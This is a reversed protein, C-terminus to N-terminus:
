DENSEGRNIFKEYIGIHQGNLKEERDLKKLTLTIIEESRKSFSFGAVFKEPDDGPEGWAIQPPKSADQELEIEIGPYEEKLKEEAYSQDKATVVGKEKGAKFKFTFINRINMSEIEEESPSLMLRLNNVIKLDLFSGEKPLLGLLAFREPISLKMKLEYAKEEVKTDM